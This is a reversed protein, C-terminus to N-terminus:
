RKVMDIVLCVISLGGGLMIAWFQWTNPRVPPGKGYPALYLALVFVCLLATFLLFVRGYPNMPTM